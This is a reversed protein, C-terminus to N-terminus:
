PCPKCPSVVQRFCSCSRCSKSRGQHRSNRWARCRKGTTLYYQTLRHCRAPATGGWSFRILLPAGSPAGNRKNPIRLHSRVFLPILAGPRKSSLADENPSTQMFANGTPLALALAKDGEIARYSQWLWSGVSRRRPRRFGRCSDPRRCAISREDTVCALASPGGGRAM